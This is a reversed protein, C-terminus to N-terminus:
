IHEEEPRMAPKYVVMHGVCLLISLTITFFLSVLSNPMFIFFLLPVGLAVAYAYMKPYVNGLVSVTDSPNEMAVYLVGFCMGIPLIFIPHIVLFLCLLVGCVSLYNGGMNGYNIVIRSKGEELNVPMSACSYDLFDKLPVRKEIKDRVYFGVESYIKSQM